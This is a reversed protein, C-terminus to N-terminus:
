EELNTLEKKSNSQMFSVSEAIFEYTYVKNDEKDVYNNNQVRAKVSILDGKQCFECVRQAIVHWVTCTIFDTDYLGDVNKFPRKVALTIQCNKKGQVTRIEPTKTLRGVLFLQNIIM